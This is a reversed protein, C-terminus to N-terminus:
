GVLLELSTEWAIFLDLAILTIVRLVEPELKGLGRKDNDERPQKLENLLTNFAETSALRVLKIHPNLPCSQTM